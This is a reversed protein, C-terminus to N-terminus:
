RGAVKAIRVYQELDVVVGGPQGRLKAAEALARDGPPRNPKRSCPKSTTFQDLVARELMSAHEPTRVTQEAGALARRHRAIRHGALTYIELHLEGLRARVEVTAGAHGPPVSYRNTEFAVLAERSVVRQERYQAPFPLEPLSRLPEAAALEGVASRGRRRRDAVAVCWRDLDAQAQAPTSLPASRWWSQTVYQIAKEVVGKRQPRNAPCVTIQVGYHKAMAAAEPRLRDTGPRVVTAMRDTRWCRATGGLRRLVGDLAEALHPFSEGESFVGRLRGSHSLAGVLVYAKVGWPTESLELWDLQLEEGPAHELGVTLKVGGARCCECVPRLGLERIERVLTPYSRDFGLGGLEEFLTTALVHADDEFRAELYPRFLELCSPAPVRVPAKGALYKAVTKRDRGTHRAIASVSWGRRALAHIEVDDEQTLM